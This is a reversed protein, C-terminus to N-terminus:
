LTGATRISKRICNKLILEQNFGYPQNDVSQRKENQVVNQQNVLAAKTVTNELYGMRDSELWLAMEVANRPIVEYYM